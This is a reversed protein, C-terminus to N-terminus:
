ITFAEIRLYQRVMAEKPPQPSQSGVFKPYDDLSGYPTGKARQTFAQAMLRSLRDRAQPQALGSFVLLKAVIPWKVQPSTCQHDTCFMQSM